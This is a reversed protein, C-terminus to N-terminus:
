GYDAEAIIRADRGFTFSVGFISNYPLTLPGQVPAMLRIEDGWQAAGVAAYWEDATYALHVTGSPELGPYDEVTFTGEGDRAMAASAIAEPLMSVPIGLRSAEILLETTNAEPDTIINILPSADLIPALAAWDHEDVVLEGVGAYSGDVRRASWWSTHVHGGLQRARIRFFRPQRQAVTLAHRDHEERVAQSSGGNATWDGCSCWGTHCRGGGPHYHPESITLKHGAIEAM